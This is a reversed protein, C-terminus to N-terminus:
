DPCPIPPYSLLLLLLPLPLGHKQKCSDSGNESKGDARQGRGAGDKLQVLPRVTFDATACALELSSVSFVRSSRAACYWLRRSSASPFVASSSTTALTTPARVSRLAASKAPRRPHPPCPRQMTSGAQRVSVSQEWRRTDTPRGHQQAHTHTNNKEDYLTADIRLLMQLQVGVLQHSAVDRLCESEHEVSHKKLCVVTILKCQTPSECVHLACCWARSKWSVAGKKQLSYYRFMKCQILSSSTNCHVVVSASLKKLEFFFM